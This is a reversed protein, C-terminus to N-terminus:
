KKPSSIVSHLFVGTLHMAIGSANPVSQHSLESAVGLYFQLSLRILREVSAQAQDFGEDAVGPIDDWFNKDAKTDGM